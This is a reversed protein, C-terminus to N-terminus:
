GFFTKLKGLPLVPPVRKRYALYEDGYTEELYRDEDKVLMKLFFYMVVGTSLVFWNNLFFAIAPIFFVIWSAYVPHRCAGYVGSTVLKGEKFARMVTSLSIVYFPVGALILAIGTMTLMRYPFFSMAFLPNLVISLWIVVIGYPLMYGFLRPGVGWHTMKKEASGFGGEMSDISGEHTKM